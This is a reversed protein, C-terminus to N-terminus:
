VERPKTAVAAWDVAPPERDPLVRRLLEMTKAFSDQPQMRPDECEISFAGAYGAARLAAVIRAWVHESHGYGPTAFHWPRGDPDDYDAASLAGSLSLAHSKIVTDKIHVTHIADGAREILLLPDIGQWWLHSHDYNMGIVPGVEARLRAFTEWNYVVTAPHPEIALRVGHKSAVEAASRWYPLVKQEWQWRYADRFDPVVSPIIWNPVQEGPGGGPCGALLNVDKVGIQAALECSAEFDRHCASALKADPDLPNGHCSLSTLSLGRSSLSELFRERAHEDQALHVPDLHSKPIHGGGCGEIQEVGAQKAIDLASEWGRDLFSASMLAIKM